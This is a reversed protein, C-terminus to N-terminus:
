QKLTTNHKKNQFLLLIVRYDYVSNIEQTKQKSKIQNSRVQNKAVFAKIQPPIQTKIISFVLKTTSIIMAAKKKHTHTTQKKINHISFFM